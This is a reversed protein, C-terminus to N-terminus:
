RRCKEHVYVLTPLFNPLQVLHRCQHSKTGLYIGVSVRSWESELWHSMLTFTLILLAKANTRRGNGKMLRANDLEAHSAKYNDM